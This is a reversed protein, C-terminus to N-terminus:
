WQCKGLAFAQWVLDFSFEQSPVDVPLARFNESSCPFLEVCMIKPVLADLGHRLYPNLKARWYDGGAPAGLKADFFFFPFASQFVLNRRRQEFYYPIERHYGVELLNFHPNATLLYVEATEPSDIYSLPLLEAHVTYKRSLEKAFRDLLAADEALM